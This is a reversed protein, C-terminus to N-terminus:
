FFFIPYAFRIPYKLLASHTLKTFAISGAAAATAAAAAAAATTAAAAAAAATTTTTTTTVLNPLNLLILLNSYQALDSIVISRKRKEQVMIISKRSLIPNSYLKGCDSM